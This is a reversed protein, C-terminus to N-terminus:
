GIINIAKYPSSSTQRDRGREREWQEHPCCLGHTCVDFPHSDVFLFVSNKLGKPSVEMKLAILFKQQKLWRSYTIKDYSSSCIFSYIRCGIGSTEKWINRKLYFISERSFATHLQLPELNLVVLNSKKNSGQKKVIHAWLLQKLEKHKNEKINM